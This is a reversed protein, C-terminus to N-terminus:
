AAPLLLCCHTFGSQMQRVLFMCLLTFCCPKHCTLILHLQPSVHAEQTSWPHLLSKLQQLVGAEPFQDTENAKSERGDELQLLCPCRPESFHAVHQTHMLQWTAAAHM